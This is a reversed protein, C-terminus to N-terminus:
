VVASSAENSALADSFGGEAQIQNLDLGYEKPHLVKYIKRGEDNQLDVVTRPCAQKLKDLLLIIKPRTRNKINKEIVVAVEGNSLEVLNGVPYIGICDIFELVLKEDFHTGRAKTLIAIAELHLRGKNYVRDSTIADYTDVVSIIRTNPTISADNISRPYGTGDLREHHTYAVDVAGPFVGRASILIDRGFESHRQMIKLENADLKGPKNLVEIPVKMKGIDHLMGCIGLNNLEAVSYGKYIGMMIALICVNLSHQSTYEDQNKLQTLLLMANANQLVSDVCESVATKVSEVNLQNGFRVDHMVDKVLDSTKEYTAASQDFAKAFSIQHQTSSAATPIAGHINKQREPDITVYECVAQVAKIDSANKLDFGQLLFPSDEWPIDLGSIFMGVKLEYVHIKLDKNGM